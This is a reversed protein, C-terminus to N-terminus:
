GGVHGQADVRMLVIALELQVALGVDHRLRKQVGDKALLRVLTLHEFGHLAGLEAARGVLREVAELADGIGAFLAPVHDAIVVDSQGVTGADHVDGGGETLVVRAHATVVLKGEYLQHIRLALEHFARGPRTFAGLLDVFLDNLVQALAFQEQGSQRKRM